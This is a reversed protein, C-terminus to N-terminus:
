EATASTVAHEAALLLVQAGGLGLRVGPRRWDTPTVLAAPREEASM